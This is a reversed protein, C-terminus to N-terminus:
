NVGRGAASFIPVFAPEYSAAAHARLRARLEALVASYAPDAALNRGELPDLALDALFPDEKEPPVPAGSAPAARGAAATRGFGSSRIPCLAATRRATASLASCRRPRRM